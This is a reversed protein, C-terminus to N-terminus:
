SRQRTLKWVTFILNPFLTFVQYKFSVRWFIDKLEDMYFKKYTKNFRAACVWAWTLYRALNNFNAVNSKYKEYFAIMSDFDDIVKVREWHVITLDNNYYTWGYKKGVKIYFDMDEHRQLQEDFRIEKLSERKVVLTSSQAFNEGSFVLDEYTEGKLVDRTRAKYKKVGNDILVGSYFAKIGNLNQIMTCDNLLRETDWEDDSDLFVVYEGKAKEIGINRCTSGGKRREPIRHYYYIRRDENTYQNLLSETQDESGDDVVILEWDVFSQAIVSGISRKLEEYRNFTPIVISFFPNTKLM